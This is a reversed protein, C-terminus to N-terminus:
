KGKRAALLFRHTRGQIVGDRELVTQARYLNELCGRVCFGPFEWEIIRAFWVLAGVDYFRIARFAEQAELVEFGAAEFRRQVISLYQGPFPPPPVPDLLLEALERDNEAGVQQTIFVGGPTLVRRIEDENFDGHRNLVLDFSGDEFPYRAANGDGERFEVGLSPLKERCLAANPPYGEMAALLHHPHGLSLLFEGGGTDIDLLRATPSLYKEVTDRYSWPLDDEVEYRGAIHSFDWGRIHACSEEALWTRLLEEQNM